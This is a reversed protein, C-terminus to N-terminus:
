VNLATVWASEAIKRRRDLIVTDYSQRIAYSKSGVQNQGRDEDILGFTPIVPNLGRLPRAAQSGCRRM